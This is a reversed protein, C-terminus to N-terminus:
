KFYSMVQLIKRKCSGQMGREIELDHNGVRFKALAVRWRQPIHLLYNETSLNTKFLELTRPKPMTSMSASWVQKDCDCVRRLNM